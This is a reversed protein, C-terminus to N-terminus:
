NTEVTGTSVLEGKSLGSRIEVWAFDKIGVEVPRLKLEQTTEDVVFVGYTDPALERLAEIPVLLVDEVAAAIVEVDAEMGARLEALQEHEELLATVKAAAISDVVSLSPSISAVRGEFITDPLARFIVMVKTDLSVLQLDTEEVYFRIQPNPLDALTIAPAAGGQTGVAIRVDVVVGGFPALLATRSLKTEALELNVRAQEIVLDAAEISLASQENTLRALQEEALAVRAEASAIEDAGAGALVRALNAEAQQVQTQATGLQAQEQQLQAESVAVDEVATGQLLQELQIEVIRLEAETKQVQAQASDCDAQTTSKDLRGCVADRQAQAAWLVNQAQEVKRQAIAVDEDSAGSQLRNLNARAIAVAAEASHLGAQQVALSAEAVSIDEMTPGAQLSELALRAAKLNAEATDVANEDAAVLLEEKKLEAARVGLEGQRVAAQAESDDLRALVEDQSVIDGVEAPVEVVTGSTAFGLDVQRQPVLWGTSSTTISLDGLRVKATKITPEDNPEKAGFLNNYGLIGAVALVTLLLGFRLAKSKWLRSM